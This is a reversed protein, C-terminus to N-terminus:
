RWSRAGQAIKSKPSATPKEDLSPEVSVCLKVLEALPIGVELGGRRMTLGGAGLRIQRIMGPEPEDCVASVVGHPENWDGDAATGSLNTIIKM